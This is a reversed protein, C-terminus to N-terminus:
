RIRYVAVIVESKCDNFSPRKDFFVLNERMLKYRGCYYHGVVDKNAKQCRKKIEEAFDCENEKTKWGM